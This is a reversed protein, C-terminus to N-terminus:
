TLFKEMGSLNEAAEDRAERLAVYLSAKEDELAVFKLEVNISADKLRCLEDAVEAHMAMLKAFSKKGGELKAELDFVKLESESLERHLRNTDVVKTELLSLRRGSALLEQDKEEVIKNLCAVENESAKLKCQLEDVQSASEKMFDQFEVVLSVVKV